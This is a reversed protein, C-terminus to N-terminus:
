QTQNPHPYCIENKASRRPREGKSGLVVKFVGMKQFMIKEWRRLVKRVGGVFSQEKQFILKQSYIMNITTQVPYM